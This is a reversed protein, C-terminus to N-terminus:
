GPIRAQRCQRLVAAIHNVGAEIEAVSLAGYGLVLGPLKRAGRCYHSLPVVRVGKGALAAVIAPVDDGDALGLVTHLGAETGLVDAHLGFRRLNAMLAARKGAYVRRMRWIHKELEGADVFAAVAAQLMAAPQDGRILRRAMFQERLAAPVVVYALRMEPTLVKSFTGIYIVRQADLSRLAPLPLADFRFESDYDDEVVYGGAPGAWDLLAQRRGLSMRHGLPYQHSPTVYVMCPSGAARPLGDVRLGDRDVGVDCLRLGHSAVVARARPYGPEEMMAAGGRAMVAGCVLDLADASSGTIFVDGADCAFGRSRALYACIAGRLAIDGRPDAYKGSMGARLAQRWCRRWADGQLFGIDTNGPKFDIPAPAPAAGGARWRAPAGPPQARKAVLDNAIFSGAGRVSELLGEAALQEYAAQTVTRSVGLQEALRRSSPLRLGAVLAGAMARGRLEAILQATLTTDSDRQLLLAFDLEPVPLM